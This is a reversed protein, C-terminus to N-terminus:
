KHSLNDEYKLIIEKLKQYLLQPNEIVPSNGQAFDARGGGSGEFCSALEKILVNAELGMKNLTQSLGLVMYLNDDLITALLVIVKIEKAKILDVIRRLVQPSVYSVFRYIFKIGKIEEAKNLMEEVSSNLYEFQLNDLLKELEKIRNIRKELQVILDSPKSKLLLCIDQILDSYERVTRYAPKGTKAEIRKINQAVSSFSTIKFIGIQGTYDLHTGGCLEKSYDGISVVRVKKEYKEEFFALAKIRKAEELSMTRKVVRDNKLIYNNVEEEVRMVEQYNLKEPYFFDFRLYEDSVYSGEQKIHTGLINRLASQLLHTATHNRAISLRRKQDIKALVLDKEKFMQNTKFKGIHIIVKDKKQTDLVEFISEKREITGTDGIQGGSEPYFVTKDLVIQFLDNNKEIKLVKAKTQFETYGLFKTEKLNIFFPSDVFVKNEFMTEKQSLRRQSLLLEEFVKSSIEFGHQLAFDKSLELPIGYTDYLKFAVKASERPDNKGELFDKFEKKFINQSEELISLYNKEEELIIKSISEQLSLLEPYPKQMVKAVVPVLRYLFPKNIKMKKLHMIGRRIIKRVVYGREENSPLVGDYIAFTVARIHDSVAYINEKFKDKDVDLNSIIEKVIPSFLDTEFNTKVAQMISALRELGMGTDINKKPLPELIGPSKRNFQTFVLNWVEVFRGCSCSPNCEPRKCGFDKGWDFFIESCPGCPGDPGKEKAQAPWFNTRDDLKVIRLVPVKIIDKWINFSEEDEIYVSVWLKDEKIKLVCTLFEWAFSIAEKKFYDGFSFNGLMEFFTHHYATKGVKDLDDTRLCRQCSAARKVSPKPSLFEEKFQNMGAPTFLVTPDNKPVLSDSDFIRHDKNKFFDLFKDRLTDAKM